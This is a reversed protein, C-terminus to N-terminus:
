EAAQGMGEKKNIFMKLKEYYHTTCTTTRSSRVSALAVATAACTATVPQIHM